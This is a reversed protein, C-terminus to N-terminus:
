KLLAIIEVVAHYFNSPSHEKISKYLREFLAKVENIDINITSTYCVNDEFPVASVGTFLGKLFKKFGELDIDVDIFDPTEGLSLFALQQMNKYITMKEIKACAVGISYANRSKNNVEQLVVDSFELIQAHTFADIMNHINEKTQEGLCKEDLTFSGNLTTFFGTIFDRANQEKNASVNHASFCNLLILAIGM